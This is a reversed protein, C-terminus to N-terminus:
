KGAQCRPVLSMGRKPLHCVSRDAAAPEPEAGAPPSSEKGGERGATGDLSVFRVALM